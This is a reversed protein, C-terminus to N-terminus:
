AIQLADQHKEVNLKHTNSRFHTTLHTKRQFSRDCLECRFLREGTHVLMHNKLIYTNTFAKGCETCVFPRENTHLREHKLRGMYSVYRRDCYRCPYPREGTHTLGHSRLEAATLFRAECKECGFPREGTHKRIHREFSAKTKVHTGCLECIYIATEQNAKLLKRHPQTSHEINQQNPIHKEDSDDDEIDENDDIDYTEIDKHVQMWNLDLHDHEQATEDNILHKHIRTEKILVQVTQQPEEDSDSDLYLENCKQSIKPVPSKILSEQESLSSDEHVEISPHWKKQTKICLRRFSMALKLDAQCCFCISSPADELASLRLGTLMQIHGLLKRNSPEFLNKSKDCINTKGCIRCMRLLM